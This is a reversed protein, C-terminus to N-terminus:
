EIVPRNDYLMNLLEVEDIYDEVYAYTRCASVGKVIGRRIYVNKPDDLSIKAGKKIFVTFPLESQIHDRFYCFETDSEADYRFSSPRKWAPKMTFADLIVNSERSGSLSELLEKFTMNRNVAVAMTWDMRRCVYKDSFFHHLVPLGTQVDVTMYLVLSDMGKKWPVHAEGTSRSKIIKEVRRQSMLNQRKLEMLYTDDRNM